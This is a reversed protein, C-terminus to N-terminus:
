LKAKIPLALPELVKRVLATEGRSKDIRAKDGAFSWNAAQQPTLRREIGALCLDGLIPFFEALTQIADALHLLTSPPGPYASFAHGSGGTALFLSPYKPHYDILRCLNCM